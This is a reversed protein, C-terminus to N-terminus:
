ARAAAREILASASATRGARADRMARELVARVQKSELLQLALLEDGSFPQLIAQPKGRKAIM